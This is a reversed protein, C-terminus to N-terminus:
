GHIKNYAGDHSELLKADTAHPELLQDDSQEQTPESTNEVSLVRGCAPAHYLNLMGLKSIFSNFSKPPLAKTFFDALQSKTSIPLLRFLGQQVKDRVFHCDIELHKTREHFVPNAAIHIASQNDCYLAPARACSVGLDRLLFLLWQLECAATSLARYEAESSSRSVTNQKKARWSILSNGLFFCYGSTSRRTDLCNAWDADAFGLLQLSSSRPFFLGRGPTGKLYRVVRCATDYHTITPSSLFQSLQQTAFSIDPRTTTLYLLKGILRRYGGIDEYAASSDQHIKTSHDLPTPAPKSGILGTDKLLDLCYKRQCISIGSQSHAVELGLFYKLQGLDKIKFERDLIQKIRAFESLSDGALIIDDVYVLLATFSHDHKLTFLSYDSTSQTYGQQVLLSTLREYWKRSAQKLGYLSKLLKCVQNPKPAVVGEPITMYVDEQLEGHLFANNVDLQHLHWSKLSALAILIRVTTIKAVPSFTDFFDLGEIQNYGKAVLRAKYREISGDARHKVKYVWKSGIPKVHAPQDVYVWTKNQKLATIEANMAEIWCQFKSAEKYSSPESHAIISMAYRGHTKSINSYSHFDSIPYLIGTSSSASSSNSLNCLYDSLHAPKTTQRTSRRLIPSPSHLQNLADTTAPTHPPPIDITSNAPEIDPEHEEDEILTTTHDPEHHNNTIPPNTPPSPTTTDFLHDNNHTHYSWTITPNSTHYPLIHDHHIVDRSIFINKHNMDLLVVGKM